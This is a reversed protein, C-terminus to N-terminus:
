IGNDGESEQDSKTVAKLAALNEQGLPTLRLYKNRDNIQRKKM